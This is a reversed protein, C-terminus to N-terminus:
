EGGRKVESEEVRIIQWNNGCEESLAFKEAEQLTNRCTNWRDAFRGIWEIRFYTM